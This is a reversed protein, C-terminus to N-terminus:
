INFGPFDLLAQDSVIPNEYEHIENSIVSSIRESCPLLLLISRYLM